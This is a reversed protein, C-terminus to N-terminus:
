LIHIARYFMYYHIKFKFPEQDNLTIQTYPLCGVHSYTPNFHVHFIVFIIKSIDLFVKSFLLVWKM